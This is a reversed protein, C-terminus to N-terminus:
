NHSYDCKDWCNATSLHTLIPLSLKTFGILIFSSCKWFLRVTVKPIKYEKSLGLKNPRMYPSSKIKRETSKDDKLKTSVPGSKSSDVTKSKVLVQGSKSPEVTKTPGRNNLKQAQKNQGSNNSHVSSGGTGRRQESVIM